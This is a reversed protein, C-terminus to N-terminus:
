SDEDKQNIKWPTAQITNVASYVEPMDLTDVHKLYDRNHNKIFKNKVLYPSIYGGSYVSTWEKPPCVMPLFFPNLVELTKNAKEIWNLTDPTTTVYYKIKGKEYIKQYEIFGTSQKFLDLLILGVHYIERPTFKKFDAEFKKHFSVSLASCKWDVRANRKTLEALVADYYNANIDKFYKLKVENQLAESIREAVKQRNVQHYLSNMIMKIAIYTLEQITLQDLLELIKKAAISYRIVKGTRYKELYKEIAQQYPLLARKILKQVPQTVSLNESEKAENFLKNYHEQTKLTTEKEIEIQLAVLEDYTYAMLHREEM